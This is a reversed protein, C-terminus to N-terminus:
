PSTPFLAHLRSDQAPPTTPLDSARPARASSHARRRSADGSHAAAPLPTPVASTIGNPAHPETAGARVPGGSKPVLRASPLAASRRGRRGTPQASPLAPVRAPGPPAARGSVGAVHTRSQTRATRAACRGLACKGQNKSLPGATRRLVLIPSAQDTGLPGASLGYSGVGGRAPPEPSRRRIREAASSDDRARVSATSPLHGPHAPVGRSAHM